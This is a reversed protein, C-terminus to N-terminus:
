QSPSIQRPKESELIKTPEMEQNSLLLNNLVQDTSKLVQSDTLYGLEKNHQIFDIDEQAIQRNIRAENLRNKNRNALVWIGQSGYGLLAGTILAVPLLELIFISPFAMCLGFYVSGLLGAFLSACFGLNRIDNLIKSLNELTELSQM